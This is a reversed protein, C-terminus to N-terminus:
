NIPEYIDYPESVGDSNIRNKTIVKYGVGDIYMVDNM